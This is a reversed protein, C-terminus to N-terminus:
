AYKGKTRFSIYIKSNTCNKALRKSIILERFKLSDKNRLAEIYRNTNTSSKWNELKKSDCVTNANAYIEGDVVKFEIGNGLYEKVILENM